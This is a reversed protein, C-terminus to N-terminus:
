DRFCVNQLRHFSDALHWVRVDRAYDPSLCRRPEHLARFFEFPQTGHALRRMPAHATYPANVLRADRRSLKLFADIKEGLSAGPMDRTSFAGKGFGFNNKTPDNAM